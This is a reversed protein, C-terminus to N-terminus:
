VPFQLATSPTPPSDPDRGAEELLLLAGMAEPTDGMEDIAEDTDEIMAEGSTVESCGFVRAVDVM